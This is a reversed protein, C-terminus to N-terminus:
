QSCKNVDSNNWRISSSYNLGSQLGGGDYVERTTNTWDMDYGHGTADKFIHGEGENMKWYAVLGESQPDVGCLGDQLAAASLARDWVRVEAIRGPFYQGARYSTWTMGLGFRQFTVPLGDGDEYAEKVGDVYMTFMRGDYTLSITYWRNTSFRTSSVISGSSSPAIWQLANNDMGIEGFRLASSRKEDASTFSCLVALQKWRTSYFKVEYTFNSFERKLSEDFIINSYLSSNSMDLATFHMTRSLRLFITKSSQLVNMGDADRITLPVVYVRGEALEETSVVKVNVASSFSKNAQIVADTGDIQVASEPVPFYNTKHAANYEELAANDLSFKVKVDKDVKATTSATVAYTAPTDEVVFKVVPSTETGTILLVNKDYDYESCGSLFLGLIIGWLPAKHKTYIKKMMIM